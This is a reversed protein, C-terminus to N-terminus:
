NIEFERRIWGNLMTKAVPPMDREIVFGSPSIEGVVGKGVDWMKGAILAASMQIDDPTTEFGWKASVVFLSDRGFFEDGRSGPLFEDNPPTDNYYIWGNEDNTYYSNASVVPSTFTPTEGFWRGLRLYRKGEGRIRRDTATAEAGRAQFYGEPRKCFKDIMGSAAAVLATIRAATDDDDLNAEQVVWLKVNENTVYQSM